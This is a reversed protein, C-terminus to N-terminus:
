DNLGNLNKCLAEFNSCMGAKSLQAINWYVWRQYGWVGGSQCRKPFGISRSFKETHSSIAHLKTKKIQSSEGSVGGSHRCYVRRNAMM